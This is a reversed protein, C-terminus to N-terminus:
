HAWLTTFLLLLARSSHQLTTWRARLTTFLLLTPEQAIAHRLGIYGFHLLYCCSQGNLETTVHDLTGLTNYIAALNARSSYQSM